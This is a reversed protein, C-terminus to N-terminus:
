NLIFVKRVLQAFYPGNVLEASEVLAEFMEPSVEMQM